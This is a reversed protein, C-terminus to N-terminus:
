KSEGETIKNVMGILIVLPVYVWFLFWMLETAEVRLLIQYQIWLAIPAYVFVTIVGVIKKLM